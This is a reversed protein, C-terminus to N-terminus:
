VWGVLHGCLWALGALLATRRLRWGPSKDTVAFWRHLHETLTDGPAKNALAAVEVTVFMAGWLLWAFTWGNM